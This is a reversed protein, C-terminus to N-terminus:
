IYGVVRRDDRPSSLRSQEYRPQGPQTPHRLQSTRSARVLPRGQPPLGGGNRCFYATTPVLPWDALQSVPQRKIPRHRRHARNVEHTSPKPTSGAGPKSSSKSKMM